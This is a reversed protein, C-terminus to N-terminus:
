RPIFAYVERIPVSQPILNSESAGISRSFATIVGDMSCPISHGTGTRSSRELIQAERYEPHADLVPEISELVEEVAQHFEYENPNRKKVIEFVEESYSM